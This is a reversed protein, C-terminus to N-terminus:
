RKAYGLVVTEDEAYVVCIETVARCRRLAERRAAERSAAAEYAIMPSDVGLVLVKPAPRAVYDVILSRQDDRIFPVSAPDLAGSRVLVPPHFPAL